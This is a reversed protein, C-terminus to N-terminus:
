EQGDLHQSIKKIKRSTTTTKAINCIYVKPIGTKYEGHAQELHFQISVM